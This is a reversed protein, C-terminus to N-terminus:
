PRNNNAVRGLLVKSLESMFRQCDIAVQSQSLDIKDDTWPLNPFPQPSRMIEEFESRCRDARSGNFGHAMSHRVHRFANLRTLQDAPLWEKEEDRHVYEEWMAFLYVLILGQTAADVGTQTKTRIAPDKHKVSHRTATLLWGFEGQLSETQIRMLELLREVLPLNRDAMGSHFCDANRLLLVM